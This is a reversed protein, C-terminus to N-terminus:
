TKWRGQEAMMPADILTQETDAVNVPVIDQSLLEEDNIGADTQHMSDEANQALLKDRFAQPNELYGEPYSESESNRSPGAAGKEPEEDDAEAEDWGERKCAISYSESTVCTVAQVESSQAYNAM